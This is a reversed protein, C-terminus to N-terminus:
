QEYGTSPGVVICGACPTGNTYVTFTATNTGSFSNVFAYRGAANTPFFNANLIAKGAPYVGTVVGSSDSTANITITYPGIGHMVPGVVHAHDYNCGYETVVCNADNSIAVSNANNSIILTCNYLYISNTVGATNTIVGNDASWV